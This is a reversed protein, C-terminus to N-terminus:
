DHLNLREGTGWICMVSMQGFRGNGSGWGLMELCALGGRDTINIHSPSSRSRELWMTVM